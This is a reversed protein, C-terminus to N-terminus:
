PWVVLSSARDNWGYSGLNPWNTGGSVAFYDGQLNEYDFLTSGLAAYSSIQMSSIMNDMPYLTHLTTNPPVFLRYYQWYYNTGDYFVSYEPGPGNLLVQSEENLFNSLSAFSTFAYLRGDNGATFGLQKGDFLHIQEPEYQVGDFVFPVPPVEHVLLAESEPAMRHKDMWEERTTGSAMREAVGKEERIPITKGDKLEFYGLIDGPAEDTIETAKVQQSDTQGILAPSSVALALIIGVLLAKSRLM